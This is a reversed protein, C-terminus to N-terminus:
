IPVKQWRGNFLIHNKKYGAKKMIEAAEKFYFSLHDPNHADANLCVPINLERCRKLIWPAPYITDTAGRAIGGTNVELIIGSSSVSNLTKEVEEAYWAEKENFYRSNRNKKKVLDFHGLIDFKSCSIMERVLFYYHEVLKKIDKKFINKYILEFEENTGDICLNEGTEASQVLHVSGITYDLKLLKYKQLSPNQIEPIFDIELGLYIEIQNKYKEKLANIKNCYINLDATKM